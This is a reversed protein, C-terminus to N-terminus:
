YNKPFLEDIKKVELFRIHQYHISKILPHVHCILINSQGVQVGFM